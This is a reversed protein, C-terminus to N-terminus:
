VIFDFCYLLYHMFLALFPSFTGSLFSLLVSITLFLRKFGPKSKRMTKPDFLEPSPDGPQEEQQSAEPHEAM